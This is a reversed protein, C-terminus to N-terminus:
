GGALRQSRPLKPLCRVPEPVDDTGQGGVIGSAAAQGGEARVLPTPLAALAKPWKVRNASDTDAYNRRM